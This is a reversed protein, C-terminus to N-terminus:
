PRHNQNKKTLQLHLLVAGDPLPRFVAEEDFRDTAEGAPVPPASDVAGVALALTLALWACARCSRPLRAPSCAALAHSCCAM